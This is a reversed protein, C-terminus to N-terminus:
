EAGKTREKRRVRKPRIMKRAKAAEIADRENAEELYGERTSTKSWGGMRNKARDSVGQLAAAKDAQLRRMGYWLRGPQHTVGAVGELKEWQRGFARRTIARLAGQVSLRLFVRGKADPKTRRLKGGGFLYYDEIEGARYAAEAEALHGRLMAFALAHRQETTLVTTEGLKKGRGHVRLLGIRKGARPLIDSRRVRSVQGIRLEAGLEMALAIRPDAKPLAQWLKKSEADTYRPKEPKGTPTGTIQEWETRMAAKWGPAPMAEGPELLGEQQLWRAANQLVGCHIESARPGYKGSRKHEHAMHRWLARYERHRVEDMRKDRGLVDMIVRSARTVERRHLTDSPFKGEKPDLLRRFAGAVTLPGGKTAEETVGAALEAQRRIALTQARIEKEAIIRGGADRISECLAKKSRYRRGDWVRTYVAMGKDTREFATLLFPVEGVQYKWEGPKPGKAKRPPM